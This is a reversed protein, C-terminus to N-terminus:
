PSVDLTLRYEGQIYASFSVPTARVGAECPPLYDTVIRSNVTWKNDTNPYPLCIIRPSRAVGDPDYGFRRLLPRPEAGHEQALFAINVRAGENLHSGGSRVTEWHAFACTGPPIRQWAQIESYTDFIKYTGVLLDITGKNCVNIETAGEVTSALLMLACPLLLLSRVRM